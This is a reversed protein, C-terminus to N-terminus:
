FVTKWVNKFMKEQYWAFFQQFVNSIFLFPTQIAGFFHKSWSEPTRLVQFSTLICLVRVQNDLKDINQQLRAVEAAHHNTTSEMESQFLNVHLNPDPRTLITRARTPSSSQGAM